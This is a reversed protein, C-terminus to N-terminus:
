TTAPVLDLTLAGGTARFGMKELYRRHEPTHATARLRRYGMQQLEASTHFLYTGVKLDRYAPTAFDVGVDGVGDGDPASVALVGAPVTDRLVFLVKQAPEIRAQPQSRAIDRRHFDMFQRVYESDAPMHAVAFAEHVRRRM